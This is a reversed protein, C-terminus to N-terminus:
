SVADRIEKTNNLRPQPRAGDTRGKRLLHLLLSVQYKWQTVTSMVMERQRPIWSFFFSPLTFSNVFEM